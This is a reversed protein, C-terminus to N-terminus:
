FDVDANRVLWNYKTEEPDPAPIWRGEKTQLLLSHNAGEFIKLALQRNGGERLYQKILAASKEAPYNTDAGGFILLVPCKVKRWVTAPEFAATRSTSEWIWSERPVGGLTLNFWKKDRALPIAQQFKKWEEEELAAKFQLRLFAEMEQLEAASTGLRKAKGIQDYTVQEAPSVGSASILILYALKKDKAAAVPAIWGGQSIGELGIQSANIDKQTRLFRVGALVDGALTEFSAAHWDGTSGGVGRKDFILVAIGLKLYGDAIGFLYNDDRGRDQSGHVFVVASHLSSTNPRLLTGSLATNGNAFRVQQQRYADAKKATAVLSDKNYLAFGTVKGDAGRQFHVIETPKESQIVSRGLFFKDGKLPILADGSSGEDLSIARLHAFGGWTVLVRGGQALEYMHVYDQQANESVPETKVWHISGTDQGRIITGKFLNGKLEGTVVFPSAAGSLFEFRVKNGSVSLKEIKRKAADWGQANFFGNGKSFVAQVFGNRNPFLTSGGAWSGELSLQATSATGLLLLFGALLTRLLLM